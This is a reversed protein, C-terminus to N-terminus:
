ANLMPARIAAPIVRPVDLQCFEVQDQRVGDSKWPIKETAHIMMRGNTHTM